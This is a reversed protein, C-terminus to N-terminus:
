EIGTSPRRRAVAHRMENIAAVFMALNPLYAFGTPTVVAVLAAVAAWAHRGSASLVIAAIAASMGVAALTFIAVPNSFDGWGAVLVAFGVAVTAGAALSTFVPSPDILRSVVPFSRTNRVGLM